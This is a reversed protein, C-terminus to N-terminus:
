RRRSSLAFWLSPLFKHNRVIKGDPGCPGAERKFRSVAVGSDSYFNKSTKEM